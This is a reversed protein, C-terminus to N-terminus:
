PSSTTIPTLTPPATPLTGTPSPVFIPTSTRNFVPPRIYNLYSPQFVLFTCLLGTIFGMGIFTIWWLDSRNLGKHIISSATFWIFGFLIFYFVLDILFGSPIIRGNLFDVFDIKGWSSTPSGGGWDDCIFMVPFGAGVMDGCYTNEPYLYRASISVAWLALLICVWSILFGRLGQRFFQNENM